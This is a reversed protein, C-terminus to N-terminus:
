VFHFLDRIYQSLNLQSCYRDSDNVTMCSDYLCTCLTSRPCESLHLLRINDVGTNFRQLRKHGRGRSFGGENLGKM